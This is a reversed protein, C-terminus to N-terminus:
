FITDIGTANQTPAATATSPAFFDGSIDGLLDMNSKPQKPQQQQQQQIQPPQQVPAPAGQPPKISAKYQFNFKLNLM